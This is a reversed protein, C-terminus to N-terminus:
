RNPLPARGPIVEGMMLAARGTILSKDVRLHIAEAQEFPVKGTRDAAQLKWPVGSVWETPGGSILRSNSWSM